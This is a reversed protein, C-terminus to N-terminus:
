YSLHLRYSHLFTSLCSGSDEGWPTNSLLFGHTSTGFQHLGGLREIASPPIVVPVLLVLSNKDTWDLLPGSNTDREKLTSTLSVAELHSWGSTNMRWVHLECSSSSHSMDQPHIFSIISAVFQGDPSIAVERVRSSYTGTGNLLEYGLM